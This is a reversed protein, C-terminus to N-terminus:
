TDVGVRGDFGDLAGGWSDTPPLEVSFREFPVRGKGSSRVRGDMRLGVYVGVDDGLNAMEKQEKVWDSWDGARVATARFKLDEARPPEVASSGNTSVPIILVGREILGERVREADELATRVYADDGAVVVCRAFGRLDELRTGRGNALECRLRGLREERGIRAMQRARAAEERSYLWVFFGVCALDVGLNGLSTALPPANPAGAAGTAAQIVAIGSGITASTGCAGFLFQRAIRFPAEAESRLKTENSYTARTRTTTTTEETRKTMMTMPAGDRTRRARRAARSSVRSSPADRARSALARAVRPSSTSRMAVRLPSAPHRSARGM